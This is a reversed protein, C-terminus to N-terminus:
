YPWHSRRMKRYPRQLCVIKSEPINLFLKWFHAVKPSFGRLTTLAKRITKRDFNELVWSASELDGKDLLRQVVFLPKQPLNKKDVDWFYKDFSAPVM